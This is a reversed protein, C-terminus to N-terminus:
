EIIIAREHFFIADPSRFEDTSITASILNQRLHPRTVVWLLFYIVKFCHWVFGQAWEQHALEEPDRYLVLYQAVASHCSCNKYQYTNLPRLPYHAIMGYRVGAAEDTIVKMGYPRCWSYGVCRIISSCGSKRHQKRQYYKLLQSQGEITLSWNCKVGNLLRLALYIWDSISLSKHSYKISWLLIHRAFIFTKSLSNWFSNLTLTLM